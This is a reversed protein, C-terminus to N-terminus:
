EQQLVQYLFDICRDDQMILDNQSAHWRANVVTPSGIEVFYGEAGVRYKLKKVHFAKLVHRLKIRREVGLGLNSAICVDRVRAIKEKRTM